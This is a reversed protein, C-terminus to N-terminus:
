GRDYEFWDLEKGLDEALATRLTGFDQWIARSASRQIRVQNDKGTSEMTAEHVTGGAALAAAGTAIMQTMAESLTSSETIRNKTTIFVSSSDFAFLEAIVTTSSVSTHVDRAMDFAVEHRTTGIVQWADEIAEVAANLEVQFDDLQPTISYTAREWIDPYLLSTFVTEVAQYVVHESVGGGPLIELLAADLLTDAVVPSGLFGNVATVTGASESLVYVVHAVSATAANFVSLVDGAAVEDGEAADLLAFAVTAGSVTEAADANARLIVPKEGIGHGYLITKARQVIDVTAM